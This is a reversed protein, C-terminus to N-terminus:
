VEWYLKEQYRWYFRGLLHSFIFLLWIFVIKRMVALGLARLIASSLTPVTAAGVSSITSIFLDYLFYLSYFLFVLGCYQPFTSIISRVLLVPNLASISDFMVTALVGMPFFFGAYVILAWTIKKKPEIGSFVCYVIYISLPGLFFLYCALLKLCQWLEEFLEGSGSFAVPARLGGAASDRICECCYWYTFFVILLQVLFAFCCFFIALYEGLVILALSFLGSGSVPYLFIDIPWPLKRKQVNERYQNQVPKTSKSDQPEEENKHREKQEIAPGAALDLLDDVVFHKSSDASSLQKQQRSTENEQSQPVVNPGNCKRCRVRKGAYSIPVGIKQNCSNCRFKILESKQRNPQEQAVPVHVPRKCKPCRVRKGACTDPAGIGHNCHNCHFKIM